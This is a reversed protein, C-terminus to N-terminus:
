ESAHSWGILNPPTKINGKEEYFVSGLREYSSAM